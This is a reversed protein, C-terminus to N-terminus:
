WITATSWCRRDSVEDSRNPSCVLGLVFVDCSDCADEDLLHGRLCRRDKEVRAVTTVVSRRLFDLAITSQLTSLILRIPPSASFGSAQIRGSASGANMSCCVAKRAPFPSCRGRKSMGNSRAIHAVRSCQKASPEHPDVAV